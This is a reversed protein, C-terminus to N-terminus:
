SVIWVCICECFERGISSLPFVAKDLELSKHRLFSGCCCFVSLSTTPVTGSGERERREALPEDGEAGGHTRTM